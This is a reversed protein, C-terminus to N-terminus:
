DSSAIAAAANKPKGCTRAIKRYGNVPGSALWHHKILGLLRGDEQDRASACQRLRACYDSHARGSGPM